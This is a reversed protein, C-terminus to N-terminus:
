TPSVATLCYQVQVQLRLVATLLCDVLKNLKLITGVCTCWDDRRTLNTWVNSLVVAQPAACLVTLIAPTVAAAELVAINALVVLIFITTKDFM